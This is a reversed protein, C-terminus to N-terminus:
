RTMHADNWLRLRSGTQPRESNRAEEHVLESTVQLLVSLGHYTLVDDWVRQGEDTWTAPRQPTAEALANQPRRPLPCAQRRTETEM